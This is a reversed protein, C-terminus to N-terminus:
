QHSSANFRTANFAKTFAKGTYFVLAKQTGQIRYAKETEYDRTMEFAQMLNYINIKELDNIVIEPLNEFGKGSPYDTVYYAHDLFFNMRQLQVPHNQQIRELYDAEYADYLRDDITPTSESSQAWLSASSTVFLSILLFARM